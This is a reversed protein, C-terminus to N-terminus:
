LTYWRVLSDSLIMGLIHIIIFRYVIKNEKWGLLQFHHHIPSMLFIKRKFIYIFFLQIIVTALEIMYFFGIFIVYFGDGNMFTITVLSAGLFHSGADGMFIEAPNCNYWLFGLIIGINILSCFLLDIPLDNKLVIYSISIFYLGGALGDLGDTINVANIIGISIISSIIIENIYLFKINNFLSIYNLSIGYIIWPVIILIQLFFKSFSSLGESSNNKYKLYDDFLGIMTVSFILYLLYINKKIKIEFLFFYMILFVVLFVFGGISPTNKKIDININPGYKKQQLICKNKKIKKIWLDILFITIVVIILLLLLNQIM